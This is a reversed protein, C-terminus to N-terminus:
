IRKKIYGNTNIIVALIWHHMNFYNFKYFYTKQLLAGCIFELIIVLVALFSAITPNIKLINEIFHIFSSIDILTLISIILFLVGISRVLFIAITKM